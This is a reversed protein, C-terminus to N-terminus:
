GWQCETIDFRGMPTTFATKQKDEENYNLTISDGYHSKICLFIYKRWSSRFKHNIRQNKAIPYPDHALYKNLFRFDVVARWEDITHPKKIMLCPSDYPSRSPRIIKNGLMEKV